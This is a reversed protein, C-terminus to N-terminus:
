NPNILSPAPAQCDAVLDVSQTARAYWDQFVLVDWLLYQWDRGGQVHELWKARIISADLLGHRGFAAPSLLDEAWDRLPGRLWSHIPVSFGMKPREILDPPVYKYLVQRLIWKGVGNRIKMRLPLKWALDVVRHDLLPVRAELSVAMSARDIKTLIDDPLYNTLDTLMMTEELMYPSSQFVSDVFSAPESSNVVVESPHDWHSLARLYISEPGEAAFYPAFRSIKDGLSYQRLERRAFPRTLGFGRDIAVPHISHLIQGMAKRIPRPTMRM